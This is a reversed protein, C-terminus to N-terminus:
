TLTACCVGSHSQCVKLVPDISLPIPFHNASQERRGSEERHLQRPCITHRQVNDAASCRSCWNFCAFFFDTSDSLPSPCTPLFTSFRELNFSYEVTERFFQSNMLHLSLMAPEFPPSVYTRQHSLLPSTRTPPPHIQYDARRVPSTGLRTSNDVRNRWLM